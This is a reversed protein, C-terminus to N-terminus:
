NKTIVAEPVSLCDPPLKRLIANSFDTKAISNLDHADSGYVIKLGADIAIEYVRYWQQQYYESLRWGTLENIEWTINNAASLRAAETLVGLIEEFFVDM